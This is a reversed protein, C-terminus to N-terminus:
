QTCFKIDHMCGLPVIIAYHLNSVECVQGQAAQMSKLATELQASKAALDINVRDLEMRLSAGEKSAQEQQDARAKLDANAKALQDQVQRQQQTAEELRTNKQQVEHNLSTLRLQLTQESSQLAKLQAQM